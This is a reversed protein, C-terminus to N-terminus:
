IREMARILGFMLAFVALALLIAVLDMGSGSREAV